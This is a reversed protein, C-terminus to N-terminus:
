RKKIRPNLKSKLTRPTAQVAVVAVGMGVAVGVSGGGVLVRTGAVGVGGRTLGVAPVASGESVGVGM